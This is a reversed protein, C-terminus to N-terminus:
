PGILLDAPERLFMLKILHIISFLLAVSEVSSFDKLDTFDTANNNQM